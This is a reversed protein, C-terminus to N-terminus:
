VLLCHTCRSMHQAMISSYSHGVTDESSLAIYMGDASISVGNTNTSTSLAYSTSYSISGTPQQFVYSTGVGGTANVSIAIISGDYSMAVLLSASSTSISYISGLSYWTGALEEYQYVLCYTTGSNTAV